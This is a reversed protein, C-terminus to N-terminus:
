SRDFPHVFIEGKGLTHTGAFKKQTSLFRAITDRVLKEPVGQAILMEGLRHPALEAIWGRVSPHFAAHRLEDPHTTPDYLRHYHLLYSPVQHAYDSLCMGSHVLYIGPARGPTVLCHSIPRDSNGMIHDMVALKDLVGAKGVAMLADATEHNPNMSHAGARTSLEIHSGPVFQTATHPSSNDPHSFCAVPVVHAGLGFFEKAVNYFIADRRSTPLEDAAEMEGRLYQPNVAPAVHVYTGNAATSWGDRLTDLDLGEILARQEDHRIASDEGHEMNSLARQGQSRQPLKDVNYGVGEYARHIRQIGGGKHVFYHTEDSGLLPLQTVPQGQHDVITLQGPDVRHGQFRFIRPAEEATPQPGKYLPESKDLSRTQASDLLAPVIHAYYPVFAGAGLREVLEHTAMAARAPLPAESVSKALGLGHKELIENAADWYPTHDTGENHAVDDNLRGIAREHPRISMWHLWFAPFIADETPQGGFHKQQVFKVAPHNAHYWKDMKGLLHANANDWLVSKIYDITAGDTKQDLGFTHRIFHTDPVVMNGAGLMSYAYRMTKNGLGTYNAEGSRKQALIDAVASRGDAGYKKMMEVLRGHDSHYRSVYDFLQGGKGHNQIGGEKTTIAGKAQGMFYENAHQPVTGSKRSFADIHAFLDPDTPSLGKEKLVDQLHSYMLEQVHVPNQASFISFHAAHAAIEDPLQGAALLGNLRKWNNIAKTHIAQTSPDSIIDKFSASEQAPNAGVGADPNYLRFAGRPTYLVGGKVDLKSHTNKLITRSREIKQGRVTLRPLPDRGKKPAAEEAVSEAPPQDGFESKSFEEESKKVHFDQVLDAFHDIFEDSADNLYSKLFSKFPVTGRWDRYAAMVQAKAFQMRKARSGRDERTLAAGGTLSSPAANGGGASLTKALEEEVRAVAAKLLSASDPTEIMPMSEASYGGLYQSDPAEVKGLLLQEIPSKRSTKNPDEVVSSVAARNCPKITCAVKKAVCKKIRNGDRELTTGEISYRVLVPLKRAHYHRIVAATSIAGPHGDDDFLEAKIYLFPLKTKDWYERQREDDCDSREFIKKAFMIRGLIDNASAGSDKENRHEYNLTGTGAEFDSIDIGEIEIIEGSSDIDESAAVGDIIMGGM